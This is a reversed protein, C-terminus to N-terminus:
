KEISKCKRTITLEKLTDNDFMFVTSFNKFDCSFYREGKRICLGNQSEGFDVIEKRPLGVRVSDWVTLIDSKLNIKWIKQDSDSFRWKTMEGKKYIDVFGVIPSITDNFLRKDILTYRGYFGIKVSDCYNNTESHKISGSTFDLFDASQIEKFDIPEDIESDMYKQILSQALSDKNISDLHEKNNTAIEQRQACSVILIGILTIIYRM